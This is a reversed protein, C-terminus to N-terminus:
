KRTIEFEYSIKDWFFISLVNLNTSLSDISWLMLRPTEFNANNKAQKYPYVVEDYIIILLYFNSM